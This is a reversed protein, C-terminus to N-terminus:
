FEFSFLRLGAIRGTTLDRVVNQEGFGYDRSAWPSILAWLSDTKAIQIAIGSSRFSDSEIVNPREDYSVTAASRLDLPDAHLAQDNQSSAARDQARISLATMLLLAQYLKKMYTKKISARLAAETM